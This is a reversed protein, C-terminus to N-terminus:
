VNAPNLSLSSDADAAIASKGRLDVVRRVGLLTLGAAITLGSLGAVIQFGSPLQRWRMLWAPVPIKSSEGILERKLRSLFEASPEVPPFATSLSAALTFLQREVPSFVSLDAEFKAGKALAEAQQALLETLREETSSIRNKDDHTTM